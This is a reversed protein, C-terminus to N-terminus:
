GQVKQLWIVRGSAEIIQAFTVGHATRFRQWTAGDSRPVPAPDLPTLAAGPKTVVAWREGM